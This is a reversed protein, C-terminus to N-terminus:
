KKELKRTSLNLVFIKTGYRRGEGWARERTQSAARKKEYMLKKEEFSGYDLGEGRQKKLEAM